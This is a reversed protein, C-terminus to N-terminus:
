SYFGYTVNLILKLWSENRKEKKTPLITFGIDKGKIFM